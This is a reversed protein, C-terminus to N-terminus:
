HDATIEAVKRAMTPELNGLLSLLLGGAKERAFLQAKEDTWDTDLPNGVRRELELSMEVHLEQIHQFIYPILMQEARQQRVEPAWYLSSRNFKGLVFEKYSDCNAEKIKKNLIAPIEPLGAKDFGSSFAAYGADFAYYDNLTGPM